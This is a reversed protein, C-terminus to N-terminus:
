TRTNEAIQLIETFAPSQTGALLYIFADALGAIYFDINKMPEQSLRQLVCSEAFYQMLEQPTFEDSPSTM